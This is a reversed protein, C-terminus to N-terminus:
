KLGFKAMTTKLWSAVADGDPNPVIRNVCFLSDNEFHRIRGDEVIDLGRDFYGAWLRGARDM